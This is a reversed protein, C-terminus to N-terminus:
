FAQALNNQNSPAPKGRCREVPASMWLAAAFNVQLTLDWVHKQWLVATLVFGGPRGAGSGCGATM